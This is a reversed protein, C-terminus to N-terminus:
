KQYLCFGFLLTEGFDSQNGGLLSEAKVKTIQTAKM